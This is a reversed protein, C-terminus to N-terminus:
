GDAGRFGILGSVIAGVGALLVIFLSIRRFVAVPVRSALWIGAGVGALTVPMLVLSLTFVDRTLIGGVAFSPLAVLNLVQFYFVINARSEKPDVGQNTFFLVVPAGSLGAVGGLVGSAAGVPVSALLERSATRQVGLLMGVATVGVVVGVLVRVVTADLGILLAAGVPTLAAGALVLAWVRRLNIWRYGDIMIATNLVVSQLLMVPVVLTPLLYITLVPAAVIVFGFGTTGQVLAAAFVAVAFVVIVPMDVM